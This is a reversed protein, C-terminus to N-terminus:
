LIHENHADHGQNHFEESEVIRKQDAREQSHAEECDTVATGLHPDGRGPICAEVSGDARSVEGFM